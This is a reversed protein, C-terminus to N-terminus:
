LEISETFPKVGLSNYIKEPQYLKDGKLVLAAKRLDAIDQLPNGDILVLDAYKGESISGTKDAQGVVKACQLTAIRLVDINPIGAMSYLELERLLTFGTHADTGPIIPVGNDFLLKTMKLLADGAARYSADEEPNAIKMTATKLSRQFAPPLHEAINAYEPDIQKDRTLLLSNFTSVTLDVEIDKKALMKVFKKVEPSNLDLDKAKEGILTFRLRQRTDIKDGGLFNLFLMNIHQIEDFGAEVAQQASMFAPIHGSLRLGRKHIHKALAKMWKPDMSSYTKIQIYGRDAYWDVADKAEQLSNVTIGNGASYESQKDIFGAKYVHTGLYGEQYLKSIEEMNAPSNGIDRVSTVGAALYNFGQTKSLHGHMDWLGPILTKGKANIVKANNPAKINQAVKKIKNNSVLVDYNELLKKNEVDVVNASKFLIPTDVHHTLQASQEKYYEHEAKDSIEKLQQFTDMGWGQQIGKIFGGINISFLHSNQDYWYFQPTMGIGSIAYLYVTQKNGDKTVETETIKHLEARGSPFLDIQNFPSNLLAKVLATNNIGDVAIYFQKESIDATGEDARSNWTAVGDEIKFYEEVPAGFASIGSIKVEVPFGKQNFVYNEQTNLRRNNWSLETSSTLSNPGNMQTIQKGMLGKDNYLELVITENANVKLCCLMLLTFIMKKLM